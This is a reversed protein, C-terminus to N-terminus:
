VGREEVLHGVDRLRREAVLPRSPRLAVSPTRQALGLRPEPVRTERAVHVGDPLGLRIKEACPLSRAISEDAADHGRVAQQLGRGEDPVFALPGLEGPAFDGLRPRAQLCSLLEPLGELREGAELAEVGLRARLELLLGSRERRPLRREEFREVARM